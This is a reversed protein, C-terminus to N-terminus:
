RGGFTRGTRMRSQYHKVLVARGKRRRMFDIHEANCSEFGHGFAHLKARFIGREDIQPIARKQNLKMREENM